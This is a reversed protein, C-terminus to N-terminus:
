VVPQKFTAQSPLFLLNVQLSSHTSKIKITHSKHYADDGTGLRGPVIVLAITGVNNETHARSPGRDRTQAVAVANRVGTM